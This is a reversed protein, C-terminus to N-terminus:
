AHHVECPHYAEIRRGHGDHAADHALGCTRQLADAGDEVCVSGGEFVHHRSYCVDQARIIRLLYTM